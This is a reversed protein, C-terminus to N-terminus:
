PRTGPNAVVDVLEEDLLASLENWGGRASELADSFATLLEAPICVGGGARYREREEITPGAAGMGPLALADRVLDRAQWEFLSEADRLGFVWLAAVESPEPPSGEGEIAASWMGSVCPALGRMIFAMHAPSAAFPELADRNELWAMTALARPSRGVIVQQAGAAERLAHALSVAHDVAGPDADERLSACIVHVVGTM